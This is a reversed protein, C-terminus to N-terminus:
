YINEKSIKEYMHLLTDLVYTEAYDENYIFDHLQLVIQKKSNDLYKICNTKLNSINTYEFKPNHKKIEYTLNEIISQILMENCFSYDKQEFKEILQEKNFKM